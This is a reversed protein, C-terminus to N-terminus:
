LHCSTSAHLSATSSPRHDQSGSALTLTYMAQLDLATRLLTAPVLFVHTAVTRIRLVASVPPRAVPDKLGHAVTPTGMFPVALAM